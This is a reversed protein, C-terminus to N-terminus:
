GFTFLIFNFTFLIPIEAARETTPRAASGIKCHPRILRSYIGIQLPRVASSYFLLLPLGQKFAKFNKVAASLPLMFAAASLQKM